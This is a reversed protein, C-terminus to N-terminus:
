EDIQNKLSQLTEEIGRIQENQHAQLRNREADQLHEIEKRMQVTEKKAEELELQMKALDNQSDPIM